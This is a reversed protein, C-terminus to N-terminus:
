QKVVKVQKNNVSIIYTGKPLPALQLTTQNEEAIYQNVLWGRTDHIEITDGAKITVNEITIVGSTPNPYAQLPTNAAQRLKIPCSELQQGDKTTLLVSYDANYDKTAGTFYLNGSTEGPINVGNEQWQYAVFSYGGNNAPENIVSLVDDWVQIVLNPLCSLKFSVSLSHPATVNTFTYSGSSAAAANTVGDVLVQNIEYGTNPTFTFSQSSGYTVTQNTAPSLSGGAGASVTIIYIPSQLIALGKHESGISSMTWINNFDWGLNTEIWSQSQFSSLLDDYGNLGNSDSNSVTLGNITM